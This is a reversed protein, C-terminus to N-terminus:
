NLRAQRMADRLPRFGILRVGSSKLLAKWAADMLCEADSVRIDAFETDYARLEEGDEVPHLAVETVGRPLRGIRLFLGPRATEGWAPAHFNDATVVGAQTLTNRSIHSFPWSRRSLRLPLGYSKALRMYLDFFQRDLQLVEMHSDIHTVDVNWALATEIQVRCEREVDGLDARAWVEHATIPLYGNRDHLSSAGTLSQWRYAAYESTLTLHIGVDLDRCAPASTTAISSSSGNM